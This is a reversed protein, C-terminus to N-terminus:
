SEGKKEAVSPDTQKSDGALQLGFRDYVFPKSGLSFRLTGPQADVDALTAEAEVGKLLWSPITLHQLAEGFPSREVDPLEVLRDGEGLRTQIRGDSARSFSLTSYREDLSFANLRAVTGEAGIEGAIQEAHKRWSGGLQEALRALAEPHTSREVLERCDAPVRLEARDALVRWTAELIRLDRYVIGIGSGRPGRAEGNDRLYAGLSPIYPVLVEVAAHRFGEPRNDRQHRHLRGVRQLLVDMPCLDTILLDADLDLSQQVTQTAVVVAGGPTQSRDKGFRQEISKDLTERDPRAYRSHHPSPVGRADFLLPSDNANSASEELAQQTAVCAGVTNRLVMVRAGSRGAALAREAVARVDEMEHSLRVEVSRQDGCHRIAHEETRHQSAGRPRHTLLPYPAKVADELSPSKRDQSRPHLLRARVNGGLTASMLLAHGGARNHRELVQEVVATMYADSAHVEDIVLLHRLLAATRLHAHKVKLASLLVQDITGVVVAGALYRKPHEAAWTRFRLREREDDDWLAAPSSLTPVSAGREWQVDFGNGRRGLVDDVRLYGPVALVVAPRTEPNPFVRAIAEFARRHIQTAATRTPLAFYLGDVLGAHYLKFFHLLAAETKGSGTEAELVATSGETPVPLASVAAQAPRISHEPDARLIEFGPASPGLEARATWTSLGLRDLIETARQRAFRMRAFDSQGGESHPFAGPEDDSGIWDALTILGSFVHLFPQSDPLTYSSQEFAQPFWQRAAASLRAMEAIPDRGDVSSWLRSGKGRGLGDLNPPTGHHSVSVAVYDFLSDEHEFWGVLEDLLLAGQARQCLQGPSDTLVWLLEDVHGAWGSRDRRDRKAQFGHNVKGADHLATLFCLRAVDIDSLEERGALMALRRRIIAIGLLGEMTAAVDACHHRVPHWAILDGAEGLTLKAWCGKIPPRM